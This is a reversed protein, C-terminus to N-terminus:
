STVPIHSLFLRMPPKPSHIKICRRLLIRPHGPKSCRCLKGPYDLYATGQCQFLYIWVFSFSDKSTDSFSSMLHKSDYQYSHKGHHGCNRENIRSNRSGHIWHRYVFFTASSNCQGRQQDLQDITWNWQSYVLITLRLSM